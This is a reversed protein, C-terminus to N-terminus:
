INTTFSIKGSIEMLLEQIQNKNSIYLDIISQKVTDAFILEATSHLSQILIIFEPEKVVTFSHQNNIIWKYLNNKMVNNDYESAVLSSKKQKSSTDDVKTESNEKENEEHEEEIDM